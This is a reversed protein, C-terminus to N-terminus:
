ACYAQWMTTALQRRKPVTKSFSIIRLDIRGTRVIGACPLRYPKFVGDVASGGFPYDAIM